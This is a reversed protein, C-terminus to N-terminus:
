GEEITSPDFNLVTNSSKKISSKLRVLENYSLRELGGRGPVLTIADYFSTEPHPRAKDILINRLDLIDHHSLVFWEGNSKRNFYVAHLQGELERCNDVYAYLLIHCPIPCTHGVDWWRDKVKNITMGIKCYYRGAIECLFVYVYGRANKFKGRM